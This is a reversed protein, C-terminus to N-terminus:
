VNNIFYDNPKPNNRYKKVDPQIYDWYWETKNNFDIIDKDNYAADYVTVNKKFKVKDVESQKRMRGVRGGEGQKRIQSKCVVDPDYVDKIFERFTKM